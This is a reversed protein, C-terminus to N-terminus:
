PVPPNLDSTCDLSNDASRCFVPVSAATRVDAYARTGAQKCGGYAKFPSGCQGRRVRVFGTVGWLFPDLEERTRPDPALRPPAANRLARHLLMVGGLGRCGRDSCLLGPAGKGKLCKPHTQTPRNRGSAQLPQAGTEGVPCFYPLPERESPTGAPERNWDAMAPTGLSRPPGNLRWPLSRTASRVSLLWQRASPTNEEEAPLPQRSERASYRRVHPASPGASQLPDSTKARGRQPTSGPLEVAPRSWEPGCLPGPAAGALVRGASLAGSRAAKPGAM